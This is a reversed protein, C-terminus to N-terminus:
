IGAAARDERMVAFVLHIRRYHIAFRVVGPRYRKYSINFIWYLERPKHHCLRRVDEERAIARILKCFLHAHFKRGVFIEEGLMAPLLQEVGTGFADYLEVM